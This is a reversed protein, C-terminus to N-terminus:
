GAAKLLLDYLPRCRQLLLLKAWEKKSLSGRITKLDTERSARLAKGPDKGAQKATNYIKVWVDTKRKRILQLFDLAAPALHLLLGVAGCRMLMDHYFYEDPGDRSPVVAGLGHGILPSTRIKEKLERVTQARTANTNETIEEM